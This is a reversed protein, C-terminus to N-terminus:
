KEEMERKLSAIEEELAMNTAAASEIAKELEDLEDKAENMYFAIDSIDTQIDELSDKIAKINM